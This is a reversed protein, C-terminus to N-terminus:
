LLILFFRSLYTFSVLLLNIDSIIPLSVSFLTCQVYCCCCCRHCRLWRRCGNKLQLKWDMHGKAITYICVHMLTSHTCAFWLEYDCFTWRSIHRGDVCGFSGVVKQRGKAKSACATHEKNRGNKKAERTEDETCKRTQTPLSALKALLKQDSDSSSNSKKWKQLFQFDIAHARLYAFVRRNICMRKRSCNFQSPQSITRAM